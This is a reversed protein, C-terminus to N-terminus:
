SDFGFVMRVNDTDPGNEESYEAYANLMQFFYGGIIDKLSEVWDHCQYSTNSTGGCFEEPRENPNLKTYIEPSVRGTRYVLQGWDYELLEILSLWSHSHEGLFMTTYVAQFDDNYVVRHPLYLHNEDLESVIDSPLGRPESIPRIEKGTEVGAFGRGNRVNALAAFLWYNRVIPLVESTVWVSNSNKRVQMIAHIDCGM